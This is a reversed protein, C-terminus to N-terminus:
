RGGFKESKVLFPNPELDSHELTIGTPSSLVRGGDLVLYGKNKLNLIHRDVSKFHFKLAEDSSSIPVSKLALEAKDIVAIPPFYEMDSKVDMYLFVTLASNALFGLASGFLISKNDMEHGKLLMM